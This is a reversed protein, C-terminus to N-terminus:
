SARARNRYSAKRASASHWPDRSSLINTVMAPIISSEVAQTGQFLALVSLGGAASLMGLLPLHIYQLQKSRLGPRHTLAWQFLVGVAASVLLSNVAVQNFQDRAMWSLLEIAISCVLSVLIAVAGDLPGALALLITSCGVAAGGELHVPSLLAGATAIGFLLGSASREAAERGGALRAALLRIPGYFIIAGAFVAVNLLLEILTIQWFLNM